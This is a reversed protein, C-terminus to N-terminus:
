CVPNRFSRGHKLDITWVDHLLQTIQWWNCFHPVLMLTMYSSVSHFVYFVFKLQNKGEREGGWFSIIDKNQMELCFIIMKSM